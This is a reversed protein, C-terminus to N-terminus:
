FETLLYAIVNARKEDDQMDPIQPMHIGYKNKGLLAQAYRDHKLVESPNKLWANLWAVDRRTGIGTLDPAFKQEGGMGHCHICVSQFINKGQETNGAWTSPLLAFMISFFFTFQFSRM